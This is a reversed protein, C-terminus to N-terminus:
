EKEKEWPVIWLYITHEGEIGNDNKAKMHVVEKAKAGKMDFDHSVIRSGPKLKELQPMLKVNLDPLLYLTVVNVDKLDLTFIDAKKITALDEVNNKKVNEVSEKVRQPDIDFGTAKAQYKKAATVVIRGDGCGLDYLVDGKKVQAMELMKDVVEQPTPVFVVDPTRDAKIDDESPAASEAPKTEPPKNEAVKSEAPKVEKGEDIRRLDVTTELGAQVGVKREQSVDKGGEKWTARFTYVFNKGSALPPTVFRRLEGQQKTKVGDVTLEADAPIRVQLYAPKAESQQSTLSPNSLLLGIGALAFVMYTLTRHM